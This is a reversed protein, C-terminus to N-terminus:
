GGKRRGPRPQGADARRRGVLARLTALVEPAADPAEAWRALGREVVPRGREVWKALRDKSLPEGVELLEAIADLSAGHVRRLLTAEAQLRRLARPSAPEPGDALALDVHELAASLVAAVAEIGGEPGAPAAVRDVSAGPDTSSALARDVPDVTRRRARDVRKRRHITAVWKAAQRPSEARMTGVHRLLAILTEQRADEDEPRRGGFAEALWAAVRRWRAHHAPDAPDKAARLAVLERFLAEASPLPM